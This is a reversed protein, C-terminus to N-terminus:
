GLAIDPEDIAITHAGGPMPDKHREWDQNTGLSRAHNKIKRDKFFDASWSKLFVKSGSIM